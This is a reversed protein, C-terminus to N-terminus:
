VAMVDAGKAVGSFNSGQGAAIGAVHTGHRCGSAAYTCNVGSGPGTQTTSGNPCNSTLSYCAEETVRGGLFPHSSDVGTDLVAVTQGSGTFRNAWMTPAQILPSSEALNVSDLDKSAPEDQYPENLRDEVVDTALPSRQIAELARPSAELAV